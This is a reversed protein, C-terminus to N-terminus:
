IKPTLTSCVSLFEAKHTYIRGYEIGRVGRKELTMLLYESRVM